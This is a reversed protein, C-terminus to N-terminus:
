SEDDGGPSFLGLQDSEAQGSPDPSLRGDETLYNVALRDHALKDIGRLRDLILVVLRSSPVSRAAEDVLQAEISRAIRSLDQDTLAARGRCVRTLTALLKDLDFAQREGSRKIVKLNPSGVREYTTFRRRCDPCERRRRVGDAAARSDIVSSESECYPCKV